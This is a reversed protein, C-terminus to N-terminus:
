DRLEAPATSDKDASAQAVEADESAPEDGPKDLVVLTGAAVDGARQRLPSYLVLVLPFMAMSLDILRLLNRTVLSGPPAREGDLGVVRLGCAAKGVTRGFAIETLATHLLYIVIGSVAAVQTRLALFPGGAEEAQEEWWWVLAASAFLPLADIAGALLRRGYPALHLRDAAQMTEQMERRRRLSAVITFLLMVTLLPELWRFAGPLVPTRPLVIRQAQGVASGSLADFSRELLVLGQGSLVRVSEIAYTAASPPLATVAGAAGVDVTRTGAKTLWHLRAAGEGEVTWLVPVAGGGLLHFAGILSATEVATRERGGQRYVTVTKPGERVAALATGEVDALSVDAPSQPLPGAVDITGADVWGQPSLAYVALRDTDQATRTTSPTTTPGTSAAPQPDQVRALALLTDGRSALSLLRAGAPLARGTAVTEDSILLWAGSDLLLAVQDARHAVDVTRGEVRSIQRWQSDGAPRTYVDTLFTGGREPVQHVRAIWYQERSGHALLRVDKGEAGAARPAPHLALLVAFWFAPRAARGALRTEGRQRM